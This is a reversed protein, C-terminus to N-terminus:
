LIAETKHEPQKPRVVQLIKAGQGPTLDSGGESSPLTEVVPGGPVNRLQGDEVPGIFSVCRQSVEPNRETM